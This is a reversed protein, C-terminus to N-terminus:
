TLSTIWSNIPLTSLYWVVIFCLLRCWKQSTSYCCDVWCERIALNMPGVHPGDPASLVWTPGVNAGHVMSDPYYVIFWTISWWLRRKSQKTKDVDVCRVLHTSPVGIVSTVGTVIQYIWVGSRPWWITMTMTMFLRSGGGKHLTLRGEWESICSKLIQGHFDMTLTM